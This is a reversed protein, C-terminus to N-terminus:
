SWKFIRLAKNLISVNYIGKKTKFVEGDYHGFVEKNIEFTLNSLQNYIVFKDNIHEGKLLKVVKFFTLFYPINKFIVVDMLNDNNKAKPFTKIGHGEIQNIGIHFSISKGDYFENVKLNFVKYDFILSKITALKYNLFKKVNFAVSGALGIGFSNFFYIDLERVYGVDVFNYNIKNEKIAKIVKLFDIDQWNSKSFDNGSGAPIVLMSIDKNLIKRGVSNVTGDGGFVIIHKIGNEEFESLVKELNQEVFALIHQVKYKLLLNEFKSLISIAKGNGAKPNAILGVM